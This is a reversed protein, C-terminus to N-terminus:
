FPNADGGTYTPVLFARALTHKGVFMKFQLVTPNPPPADDLWGPAVDLAHVCFIYRHVRHRPSSPGMFGVFGGSNGLQKASAPLGSGTADGAGAPLATCSAPLDYVTWHEFCSPVIGLADPDVCTVVFSKTEAPFGNWSLQPSRDKGGPMGFAGSTHVPAIQTGESVDTSSLEFTATVAKSAGHYHLETRGYFDASYPNLDSSPLVARGPLSPSSSPEGKGLALTRELAAGLAAEGTPIDLDPPAGQCIFFQAFQVVGDQSIVWGGNPNPGYTAWTPNHLLGSADTLDDVLIHDFLGAYVGDYAATFGEASAMRGAFSTQQEQVAFPDTADDIEDGNYPQIGGKPHVEAIYIMVFHVDEGYQAKLRRMAPETASTM